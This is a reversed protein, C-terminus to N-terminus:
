LFNLATKTGPTLYDAKTSMQSALFTPLNKREDIRSQDVRDENIM